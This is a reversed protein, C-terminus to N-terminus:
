IHVHLSVPLLIGCVNVLSAPTLCAAMVGVEGRQRGLDNRTRGPPSVIDLPPLNRNRSLSLEM